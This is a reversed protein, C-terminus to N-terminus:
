NSKRESLVGKVVLDDIVASSYGLETMITRTDHGISLSRAAPRGANTRWDAYCWVTQVRGLVPDKVVKIFENARLFPDDFLRDRSPIRVVPISEGSLRSLAEAVPLVRLAREIEAADEGMLATLQAIQEDTTAAIAVWGDACRYFHQSSTPGAFNVCGEAVASRGTFETLEGSQLFTATRALSVEVRV